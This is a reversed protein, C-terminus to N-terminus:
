VRKRGRALQSSSLHHSPRAVSPLDQWLPRDRTLVLVAQRRCVFPFPFWRVKLFYMQGQAQTTYKKMYHKVKAQGEFDVDEDVVFTTDNRDLDSSAADSESAGGSGSDSGSESSKEAGLYTPSLRKQRKKGDATSKATGCPAVADDSDDSDLIRRRQREALKEQERQKEAPFSRSDILNEAVSPVVPVM